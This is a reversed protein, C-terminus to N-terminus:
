RVRRGTLDFYQDERRIYLQGDLLVKRVEKAGVAGTNVLGTATKEAVTLHLTYTSDCGYVSSYEAVLTTDGVPLLSLDVGQWEAAQGEVITQTFTLRMVPRVYVVLLVVSDGGQANSEALRVSDTAPRRYTKGEYTVSEGACVYLTDAGYTTPRPQVTLHLTYTSDCGYVSSYEAVLTTDGVPLLSLDVGQWTVAEGRMMTQEEDIHTAPRTKVTLAVISDGGLANKEDLLVNEEAAETYRKGHYFVTDGECVYITEEGYTTPRPQVTLHLTYTSDCGYVSSYEAVLTTDGVPLLSLDVGQWTFLEGIMMTQEEEVHTVPANEVVLVMVSDGGLANKEELLISDVGAEKYKRELYFASDGECVYLTDAGYTTPRLMVTLHLTYTSDCGHVSSYEAVLTSDGVPLLSLDVGQWEGAAGVYVSRTEESAFLPHVTLTLCIVSDGGYVNAITDYYLRGETLGNFHEDSYVDGECIEAAYDYRTEAPHITIEKTVPEAANYVSNGAQSATISVVGESLITFAGDAYSVIGAPEMTYTVPLASSAEAPTIVGTSLIPSEPEWIITQDIKVGTGSVTVAATSTGDSITIVAKYEKAEQPTFYVPITYNAINGLVGASAEAAKGNASACANAGVAFVQGETNDASGIRFIEPESCIVSIDGASLFSRLTINYPESASLAAQEGFAHAGSTTGYTGSTLLIHRALPIDMHYVIVKHTPLGERNFKLWNIDRSIYFTENTVSNKATNEALNGVQRVTGGGDPSEQVQTDIKRAFGVFDIWEYRWQVNLTGDTPAFINTTNYDGQTNMTHETEDFLSYWVGGKYTQASLVTCLGCLATILIFRKM